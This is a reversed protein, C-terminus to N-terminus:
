ICPPFSDLFRRVEGRSRLVIVRGSFRKLEALVQPFQRSRFNWIYRLFDWQLREPCGAAMDPRTRGWGTVVRRLVRLVCLWRPLDLVVVAEAALLRLGLTGGYNGDIIWEPGALAEELRQRWRAKEPEVWGPLWYLQDLHILPLRSLAALRRAVTSKGSGPCGVILIRRM